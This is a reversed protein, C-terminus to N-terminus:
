MNSLRKRTLGASGRTAKSYSSSSGGDSVRQQLQQQQQWWRFSEEEECEYCNRWIQNGSDYVTKVGKYNGM